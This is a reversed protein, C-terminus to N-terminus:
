RCCDDALTEPRFELQDGVALDHAHAAGAALELVSCADAFRRCVRWSPIDRLVGVVRQRSDLFVADFRFRMGFSHIAYCPKIWLAHDPALGSRFSLGFLRSLFRSATVVRAVRANGRFCFLAAGDRQSSVASNM